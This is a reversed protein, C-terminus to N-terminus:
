FLPKNTVLEKPKYSPSSTIRLASTLLPILLCLITRM